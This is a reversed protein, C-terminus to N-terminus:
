SRPPLAFNVPIRVYGKIAHGNRIGPLFHWAYVATQAAADLDLSGSSREVDLAEVDGNTSLLVMLVVTGEERREISVQPYVPALRQFAPDYSPARNQVTPESLAASKTTAKPASDAVPSDLQRLKGIPAVFFDTGDGTRVDPAPRSVPAVPLAVAASAQSRQIPTPEPDALLRTALEGLGNIALLGACTFVITRNRRAKRNILSIVVGILTGIALVGLAEGLIVAGHWAHGMNQWVALGVAAIALLGYSDRLYYNPWDAQQGTGDEFPKSHADVEGPLMPPVDDAAQGELGGAAVGCRHCFHAGAQLRESCQTCYM